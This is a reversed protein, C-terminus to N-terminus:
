LLPRCGVWRWTFEHLRMLSCVDPPHSTERTEGQILHGGGQPDLSTQSGRQLTGERPLGSPPARLWQSVLSSGSGFCLGRQSPCPLDQPAICEFGAWVCIVAWGPPSSGGCTVAMAMEASACARGWGGDEERESSQAEELWVDGGPGGNVQTSMTQSCSRGLHEGGSMRGDWGMGLGLSRSFWLWGWGWPLSQCCFTCATLTVRSM